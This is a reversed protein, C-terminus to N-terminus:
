AFLSNDLFNYLPNYQSGYLVNTKLNAFFEYMKAKKSAHNRSNDMFFFYNEIKKSNAENIANSYISSIDYNYNYTTLTVYTFDRSLKFNNLSIKEGNLLIEQNNWTNGYDNSTYISNRNVVVQYQGTNSIFINLVDDQITNNKNYWAFIQRM